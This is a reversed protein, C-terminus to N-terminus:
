PSIRRSTAAVSTPVVDSVARSGTGAPARGEREPAASAYRYRSGASATKATKMNQGRPRETSRDTCPLSMKPRAEPKTPRSLKSRSNVPSENPRTSATVAPKVTRVTTGLMTSARSSARSSCWRIRATRNKRVANASGNANETAVADTTNLTSYLGATPTSM